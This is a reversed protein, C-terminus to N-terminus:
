DNLLDISLVCYRHSLMETDRLIFTVRVEVFQGTYGEIGFERLMLTDGVKYGRDDYRVEFKKVGLKVAQYYMPYIKLDHVM